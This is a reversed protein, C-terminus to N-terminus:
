TIKNLKIYKKIYYKYINETKQMNTPYVIKLKNKQPDRRYLIYYIVRCLKRSSSKAIDKM